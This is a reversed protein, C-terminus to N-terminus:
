ALCYFGNEFVLFPILIMGLLGLKAAVHFTNIDSKSRIKVVEVDCFKLLYSFIEQFNNEAAIYLGTAGSESQAAMLDFVTSSGETPEDKTLKDLLQKVSELEGSRVAEFFSQQTLFHLSKSEMMAEEKETKM